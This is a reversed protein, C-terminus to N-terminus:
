NFQAQVYKKGLIAPGISRTSIPFDFAGGGAFNLNAISSRRSDNPRPDAAVSKGTEIRSEARKTDNRLLFDREARRGELL